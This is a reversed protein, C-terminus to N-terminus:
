NLNDLKNKNKILLDTINQVQSGLTEIKTEQGMIKQKYDKIKPLEDNYKSILKEKETISAIKDNLNDVEKKQKNNLFYFTIILIILINILVVWIIM